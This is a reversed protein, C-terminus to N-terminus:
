WRPVERKAALVSRYVDEVKAAVSDWSREDRVAARAREGMSRAYAPDELLRSIGSAFAPIDDNPVV